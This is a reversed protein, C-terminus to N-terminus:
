FRRNRSRYKNDSHRQWVIGAIVLILVLAGLGAIIYIMTESSSIDINTDPPETATRLQEMETCFPKKKWRYFHVMRINRLPFPTDCRCCSLSTLNSQQVGLCKSNHINLLRIHAFSDEDTRMYGTLTIFINLNTVSFASLFGSNHLFRSTLISRDPSWGQTKVLNIRLYSVLETLRKLFTDTAHRTLFIFITSNDPCPPFPLSTLIANLPIYNRYFYNHM